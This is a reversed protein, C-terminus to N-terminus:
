TNQKSGRIKEPELGPKITSCMQKKRVFFSFSPQSKKQPRSTLAGDFPFAIMGRGVVASVSSM